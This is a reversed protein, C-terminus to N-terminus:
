SKFGKRFEDRNAWVLGIIASGVCLIHLLGVEILDNFSNKDLFPWFPRVDSHMISDFLVHSWAGVWLSIFMVKTSAEESFVKLMLPLELAKVTFMALRLVIYSIPLIVLSGLYTHFFTHLRANQFYINYATECDILVQVLVFALFHFRRMLISKVFYGPGFHFPTFPM